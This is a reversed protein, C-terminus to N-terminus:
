KRFVDHLNIRRLRQVQETLGMPLMVDELFGERFGWGSMFAEGKHKQVKKYVCMKIKTSIM